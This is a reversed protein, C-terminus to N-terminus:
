KVCMQSFTFWKRQHTCAWLEYFVFHAVDYSSHQKGIKMTEKKHDIERRKIHYHNQFCIFHRNSWRGTRWIYKTSIMKKELLISHVFFWEKAILNDYQVIILSGSICRGNRRNMKMNMIWWEFLDITHPQRVTGAYAM